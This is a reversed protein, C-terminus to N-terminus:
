RTYFEKAMKVALLPNLDDNKIVRATYDEFKALLRIQESGLYDRPTVDKKDTLGKEEILLKKTKGFLALYTNNSVGGYNPKEQNRLGWAKMEDTLSLRDVKGEQRAKLFNQREDKEFKKGFADSFLQTLSLGILDDTIEQAAKNGKRDLKRLLKEFDILQLVNVTAKNGSNTKTTSLFATARAKLFGFENGLLAKIDRSAHDKAFGFISCIQPAAIGYTGDDFMLGEFELHGLKVTAVTANLINNAM